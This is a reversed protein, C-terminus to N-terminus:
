GFIVRRGSWERRSKTSLEIILFSEEQRLVIISYTYFDKATILDKAIM